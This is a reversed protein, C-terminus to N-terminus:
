TVEIFSSDEQTLLDLTEQALYIASPPNGGSEADDMDRWISLFSALGIM